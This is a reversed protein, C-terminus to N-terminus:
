VASVQNHIGWGSRLCYAVKRSIDPPGTGPMAPGTGPM